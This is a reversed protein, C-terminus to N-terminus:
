EHPPRPCASEDVVMNTAMNDSYVIMLHIADRLPFSAWGLLPLRPRRVRQGEPGKEADVLRRTSRERTLRGIPKSWSRLKILSATPMVEDANLMFSEGTELNKVAVAIKGKHADAIPKIRSELAPDAASSIPRFAFPL